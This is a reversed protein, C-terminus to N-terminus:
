EYSIGKMYERVKKISENYKWTITNLPINLIESVERRKLDDVACLILITLEDEKLIKQAIEYVLTEKIDEKNKEEKNFIEHSNSDQLDYFIEKKRRNFVNIALNRTMTVLYAKPYKFNDMDKIKELLKIYVDQLVDKTLGDDKLIIYAVTYLSQYTQYYIDDFATIDNNALRKFLKRLDEM